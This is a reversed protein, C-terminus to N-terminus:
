AAKMLAASRMPMTVAQPPPLECDVWGVLLVAVPVAAVDSGTPLLGKFIFGASKVVPDEALRVSFPGNGADDDGDQVLGLRDHADLGPDDM